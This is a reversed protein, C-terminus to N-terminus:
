PHGRLVPKVTVLNVTQAYHAGDQYIYVNDIVNFYRLEPFENRLM